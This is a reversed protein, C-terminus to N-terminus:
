QNSFAIINGIRIQDVNPVAWLEIVDKTMFIDEKKFVM